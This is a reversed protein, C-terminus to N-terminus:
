KQLLIVENKFGKSHFERSTGMLKALGQSILTALSAQVLHYFILNVM